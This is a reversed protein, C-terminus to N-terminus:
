SPRSVSSDGVFARAGIREIMCHSLELRVLSQLSFCLEQKTIVTPSQQYFIHEWYISRNILTVYNSWRKCKLWQCCVFCHSSKMFLVYKHGVLEGESHTTRCLLSRIIPSTSNGSFIRIFISGLSSEGCGLTVECSSVSAEKKILM